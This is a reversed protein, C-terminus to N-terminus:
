RAYDILKIIDSSRLTRIKDIKKNAALAAASIKATNARLEYIQDLSEYFDVTMYNVPRQSGFHNLVKVLGWGLMGNSKNIPMFTKLEMEEYEYSKYWDVDMYNIVGYPHPPSDVDGGFGGKYDAVLNFVKSYHGIQKERILKWSNEDLGKPVTEYYANNKRNEATTFSVYLYTTELADSYPNIIEWMEWGSINGAKKQNEWIEKFYKEFALHEEVQDSPVTGYWMNVRLGGQALSFQAALVVAWLFIIKKM